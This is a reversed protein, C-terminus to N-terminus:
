VLGNGVVAQEQERYNARWNQLTRLSVDLRLAARKVDGQVDDLAVQVAIEEIASRIDRMGLGAAMARRITQELRHDKWREAAPAVPREDSPIDGITIPGPGVHRTAIRAVLSQLDRVNGPYDRTLFFAQVADDLEPPQDVSLAQRLFHRVLPIIDDTRERLGPLRITWAAIRHYLDRRFKSDSQEQHLDRNTACLLRFDSTRWSNSGVRKYTGEQLVRLLQVQLVPPLEGVEDLFLTGKDALAFAGDRAAVAGTFAGREHGFLESGSLDPVITTCDLIILEHKNRQKDLSHILRSALEKGTGTEGVLLIPASTFRTAEVLRRLVLTWARSKGVLNNTVLPSQVTADIEQWRKLRAAITAGPHQLDDWALVDSAGAHLLQWACDRPLVSGAAVIALIRTRQERAGVAHVFDCVDSSVQTLLVIGNGSLDSPQRLAVTIGAQKLCATIPEIGFVRQPCFSHIWVDLTM